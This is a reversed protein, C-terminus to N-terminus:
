PIRIIGSCRICVYHLSLARYWTRRYFHTAVLSTWKLSLPHPHPWRSCHRLETVLGSSESQVETVVLWTVQENCERTIKGTHM